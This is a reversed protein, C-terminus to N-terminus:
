KTSPLPSKKQWFPVMLGFLYFWWVDVFPSGVNEKMQESNYTISGMNKEPRLIKPVKVKKWQKKPRVLCGM